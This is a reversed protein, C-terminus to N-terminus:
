PHTRHTVHTGMQQPQTAEEKLGTMQLSEGQKSQAPNPEQPTLPGTKPHRPSSKLRVLRKGSICYCWVARCRGQTTGQSDKMPPRPRRDSWIGTELGSGPGCASQQPHSDKGRWPLLGKPTTSAVMRVAQVSGPRHCQRTHARASLTNPLMTALCLMTPVSHCPLQALLNPLLNWM